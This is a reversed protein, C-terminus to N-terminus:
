FKSLIHDVETKLKGRLTDSERLAEINLPELIQALEARLQNLQDDEVPSFRKIEDCLDIASEITVAHLNKRRTKREGDEGVVEVVECSNSISTMLKKLKEFRAGNMKNLYDMAQDNFLGKLENALDHSIQVRFDGQPVESIALRLTFAARLQDETPYDDINFLPGRAFSANSIHAPLNGIFNDLMTKHTQKHQEFEQMFKTLKSAELLQLNGAWPYTNRVLWNYRSQRAVLLSRLEGNSPFLDHSIKMARMKAGEATSVKSALQSDSHQGTYVTERFDVIVASTALSTIHKSGPLIEQSAEDM